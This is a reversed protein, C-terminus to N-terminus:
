ARGTSDCRGLRSRGRSAGRADTRRGSCAAPRAGSFGRRFERRMGGVDVALEKGFIETEGIEVAVHAIGQQGARLEVPRADGRRNETRKKLRDHVRLLPPLDAPM